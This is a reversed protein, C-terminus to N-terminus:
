ESLSSVENTVRRERSKDSVPTTRVLLVPCSAHRLVTEAVSGLLARKFGTRGHTGVVVLDARESLATDLIVRAPDGYLVRPIFDVGELDKHIERLKILNALRNPELVGLEEDYAPVLGAEVHLLILEAGESKGLKAAQGVVEHASGDLDVAVLIRKVESM